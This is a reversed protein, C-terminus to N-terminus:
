KISELKSILDSYIRKHENIFIECESRLKVLDIFFTGDIEDLIFNEIEITFIKRFYHRKTKMSSFFVSTVYEYWKSSVEKIEKRQAYSYIYLADIKGNGINSILHEERTVSNKICDNIHIHRFLCEFLCGYFTQVYEKSTNIPHYNDDMSKNTRISGNYFKTGPRPELKMEIARRDFNYLIFNLEAAVFHGLEHIFVRQLDEKM